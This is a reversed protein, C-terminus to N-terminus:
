FQIIQKSSTNRNQKYQGIINLYNRDWELSCTVKDALKQPKKEEIKFKLLDSMVSPYSVSPKELKKTSRIIPQAQECVKELKKVAEKIEPINRESASNIMKIIASDKTSNSIRMKINPLSERQIQKNQTSSNKAKTMEEAALKLKNM